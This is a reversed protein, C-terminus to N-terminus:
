CWCFKENYVWEVDDEKEEGYWKVASLHEAREKTPWGRANAIARLEPRLYWFEVKEVKEERAVVLLQDLIIPFTHEDARLRAVVLTRPSTRLDLTWTVFSLPAGSDPRLADKLTRAGYPLVAFGWQTTPRVVTMDEKFDMIRRMVFAGVGKDPLFSFLTLDTDGAFRSLDNKILVADHDYLAIVDDESLRQITVGPPTPSAAGSNTPDSAPDLMKSTELAGKVVWGDNAGPTPGVSQYFRKGVDSYLVSFHANAAGLSRLMDVDPPAGWEAPFSPPLASRPALVWHLLRMMHSAYGKHRNRPPTYVSAVGYATVERVERADVEKARKAVVATRRFTECSCMFDLTTPNSRPALVWTILKGGAAHEHTDMIVDRQVYQDVSLGKAWEAATNERSRRVQEPTAPFLSLDALSVSTM